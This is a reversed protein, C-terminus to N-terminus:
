CGVKHIVLSVLFTLALKYPQNIDLCALLKNLYLNLM